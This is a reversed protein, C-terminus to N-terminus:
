QPAVDGFFGHLSALRGDPSVVAIDIGSVSVNGEADVAEWGFRLLDHHADVASSVRLSLGAHQEQLAGMMQAIGVHGTVDALPDCYRADDIFAAAVAESRAAPDRENWAAFYRDVITAQDIAQTMSAM